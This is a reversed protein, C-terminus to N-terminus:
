AEGFSSQSRQAEVYLGFQKDSEQIHVKFWESLFNLLEFTAVERGLDIRSRLERVNSELEDHQVSHESLGPYSWIKMEAEEDRFHVDVYELLRDLTQVIAQDTEGSLKADYLDNILGVLGRHQADIKPFHIEYDPKWQFLTM